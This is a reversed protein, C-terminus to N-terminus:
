YYKNYYPDHNIGHGYQPEQHHPMDQLAVPEPFELSYLLQQIKIKAQAKQKPELRKLSLAVTKGYALDEDEVTSNESSKSSVSSERLQRLIELEIEDNGVKHRKKPPKSLTQTRFLFYCM